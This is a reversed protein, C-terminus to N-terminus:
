LLTELQAIIHLLPQYLMAQAYPNVIWDNNDPKGNINGKCGDTKALIADKLQDRADQYNHAIISKIVANTQNLMTKKMNANKFDDANLMAIHSQLDRVEMILSASWSLVLITVTSPDSNVIGDNVVLQAVYTGIFDPIFSATSFIGLNTGVQSGAPKTTLTWQYSLPDLNADYSGTGDLSVLRGIIASPSTTGASAVPKTNSFSVAVYDPKSPIWPDSVVLQLQYDGHVAPVFSPTATTADNLTPAPTPPNNSSGPWSSFSWQFSLPDGDPDYSARGPTLANLFIRVNLLTVAQDPGADAVPASNLSSLTAWVPDSYIGMADRVVLMVKYDGIIDPTLSPNVHTPSVLTAQSAAPKQILQWAYSLPINNDPDSSGSGDLSAPQGLPPPAVPAIKAKPPVAYIAAPYSGVQGWYVLTGDTKLALSKGWGGAVAAVGNLGAPVDCQGRVNYGWAVVTGDAKLALSHAEGGGVAVVGALGAPVNCQGRTNLGWAVVTGDAKVALSHEWGADVAVVESLGDPVNCQGFVNRGWAAVTGDAKLALNHYAHTAVAVVGNLGPPIDCQGQENAGWAAVTGDAKLALGHDIGAAVAVVGELGVVVHSYYYGGEEDYTYGWEVVTGDAKLVLKRDQGSAVAVVGSLGVPVDNQYGSLDVVTGDAKLGMGSSFGNCDITAAWATGALAVVALALIAVCTWAQLWGPAKVRRTKAAVTMRM